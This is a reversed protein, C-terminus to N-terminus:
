KCGTINVSDTGQVMQEISIFGTLSASTDGCQLGTDYSNFHLMLDADGDNDADQLVYQMPSAETGTRGFLATTPDVTAADFTDTTLIAVWVTSKSRVNISNPFSGPRIDLAITSVSPKPMLTIGVPSILSGHSSIVTYAGTLSDIKGISGFFDAFLINGDADPVISAPLISSDSFVVTQEGTVPNVRVISNIGGPYYGQNAVLIDNNADIAIGVPNLFNWDSSVVTQEGTVPNVRVVKGPGVGFVDFDSILIDGNADIEIGTPTILSNGSSVIRQAGTSPDVRIVKGVFDAVLIDGKADLVLDAPAVLDGGSSVITQDGTSPDIRVVGDILGFRVAVLIGGLSDLAIGGPTSLLGGSSITTQNGTTPDVHIIAPVVQDAIIIDGPKLIVAAVQGVGLLQVAFTVAILVLGKLLIKIREKFRM